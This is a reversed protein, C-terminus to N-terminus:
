GFSIVQKEADVRARVGFPLICRPAAHGVNINALIPKESDAVAELLLAHYEEQYCEDVPKGVLIGNVASLVGADKLYALAKRYKDPKMREESSELLLIKGCWDQPFLSYKACLEPMDAYRTGDFFDFITDICGGLIEGEFRPSGQLLRFGRNPYQRRPTGLQDPGFSTREAYWIDSPTVRRIKGTELLERLYKASYPLMNEEMECVDALFSQGYFTPIGLKHLMFHNVTTDSFGLFPKSNVVKELENNAFLFPLLRYTDDGGIACLIVDIEPDRYAEVLDRARQEPHEKLYQSGKRANTLFKVRYGWNELRCVGLEVEHSVFDEGITGASLSVIGITKM